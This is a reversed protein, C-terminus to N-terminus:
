LCCSEFLFFFKFYSQSCFPGCFFLFLVLRLNLSSIIRLLCWMAGVWSKHCPLTIHFTVRSCKRIFFLCVFWFLIHLLYILMLFLMIRNEAQMICLTHFINCKPLTPPSNFLGIVFFIRIKTYVFFPVFALFNPLWLHLKYRKWFSAHQLTIHRLRVIFGAAKLWACEM